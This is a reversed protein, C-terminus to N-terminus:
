KNLNKQNLYKDYLEELSVHYKEIMVQNSMRVIEHRKNNKAGVSVRNDLLM